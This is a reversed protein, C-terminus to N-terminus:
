LVDLSLGRNVGSLQEQHLVGVPGLAIILSSRAAHNNIRAESRPLPRPRLLGAVYIWITSDIILKM